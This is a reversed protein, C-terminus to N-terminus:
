FEFEFTKLKYKFEFGLKEALSISEINTEFSSWHPIINNKICDDLYAICVLTAFGKNMEEEYYTQVSIEHHNEHVSCSLCSSIIRNDKIICYGLGLKLFDESSYWFESLVDSIIKYKNIVEFDIKKIIYGKELLKYRNKITNFHNINLQYYQEYDPEYDRHSIVNELVKEWAEDKIVTIFYTGGCSIYTDIKLQNDIFERLGNIFSENKANGIFISNIGIVDILATKPQELNDVYITGRNTGNIIANLALDNIQESTGLLPRIKPYDKKDLKYVM